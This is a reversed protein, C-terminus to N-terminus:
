GRPDSSGNWTPRAPESGSRRSWGNAWRGCSSTTRGGVRGPQHLHVAALDLPDADGRARQPLLPVRLRGRRWRRDSLTDYFGEHGEVFEEVAISDVGKAGFSALVQALQDDNDVRTTDAAGAGSRPKLILPFGVAKAFQQVQEANDAATSAATPVGAARLADKMSPKDRCLYATRVSTGPITCAERVQAVSLIHAEITSELRDVWARDQVWRVASTMAGVDTVNPVQHYHRMWGRLEDDLAEQPSEGIGIVEAGVSALARVFERQNRPFSPEVFVVRVGWM